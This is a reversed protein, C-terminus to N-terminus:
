LSSPFVNLEQMWFANEKPLCNLLINDELCLYPIKSLVNIVQSLQGGIKGEIIIGSREEKTPCFTRKIRIALDPETM